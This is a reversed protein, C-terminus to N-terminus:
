RNQICTTLDSKTFHLVSAFRIYHGRHFFSEPLFDSAEVAENGGRSSRDSGASAFTAPRPERGSFFLAKARRVVSMVRDFGKGGPANASLIGDIRSSPATGRKKDTDETLLFAM